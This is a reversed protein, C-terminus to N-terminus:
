RELMDFGAQDLTMLEKIAHIISLDAKMSDLRPRITDGLGDEASAILVPGNPTDSQGPLYTGLSVATAIALSVWSKGIGPDGELLTVKGVPIYPEWLWRVIEPEVEALTVWGSGELETVAQRNLEGTPYRSISRAINLVETDALPQKCQEKNTALLAAEIVIRSFGVHRMGGAMSALTANRKGVPITQGEPTAEVPKHGNSGAKAIEVLWDPALAIPSDDLTEYSLRTVSPVAAIYSDNARIDINQYGYKGVGPRINMGEPIKYVFQLGQEKPEAETGGGTKITWTPPLKGHESEMQIKSQLGVYEDFDAVLLGNCRIGVNADPWRQWWGTIIAPDITADKHGHATIPTKERPKLPFIALGRSAYNLAADLLVKM